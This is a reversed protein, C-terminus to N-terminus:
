YIAMGFRHRVAKIFKSWSSLLSNRSAWQFWTAARGEMHFSVIQLRLENLTTHYYFFAEVRFLWEIPHSEDFRPVDLKMTCYAKTPNSRSGNGDLPLSAPIESSSGERLLTFHHWEAQLNAM